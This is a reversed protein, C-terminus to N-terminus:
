SRQGRATAILDDAMSEVTFAPRWGLDEEAAQISLDWSASIRSVPGLQPDTAFTPTYGPVRERAIRILDQVTALGTSLHYIRRRASPALALATLGRAADRAYLVPTGAAPDVDIAYLEGLAAKELILSTYMTASGSGAIRSPGVIAAM